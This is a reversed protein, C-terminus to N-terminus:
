PTVPSDGFRYVEDTGFTAIASIAGAQRQAHVAALTAPDLADGHVVVYTAGLDKAAALWAPLTDATVVTQIPKSERPTFGSWGNLRPHGDVTSALMYYSAETTAAPLEVVPGPTETRLFQYAAPLNAGWPITEVPIAVAYEAAMAIMVIGVVIPRAVGRPVRRLLRVFTAAGIISIALLVIVGFRAPARLSDLLLM